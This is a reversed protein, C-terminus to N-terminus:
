IVAGEYRAGNEVALEPWQTLYLDAFRAAKQGSLSLSATNAISDLWITKAGLVRGFMLGFFGVSAGTTMVINPRVRVVTFLTRFAQWALRAKSWRSADPIFYFPANPNDEAYSRETTAFVLEHGAFAERTQMLEVWHGGSSAIMLVKM